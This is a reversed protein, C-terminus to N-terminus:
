RVGVLECSLLCHRRRWWRGVWQGVNHDIVTRWGYAFHAFIREFGTLKAVFMNNSFKVAISRLLLRRRKAIPVADAASARWCAVAATHLRNRVIRHIIDPFNSRNAIREWRQADVLFQKFHLVATLHAAAAADTSQWRVNDHLHYIIIRGLTISIKYVNLDINNNCIIIILLRFHM